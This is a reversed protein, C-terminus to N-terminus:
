SSRASDIEKGATNEIIHALDEWSYKDTMNQPDLIHKPIIYLVDGFAAQMALVYPKWFKFRVRYPDGDILEANHIPDVYNRKQASLVNFPNKLAKLSFIVDEGTLPKGDAWKVDKRLTFDYQLHDASITPMSEALVPVTYQMTNVDIGILRQYMQEEMYTADATTSNLPNIADVDSLEFETVRNNASEKPAGGGKGCSAVLFASFLVVFLQYLPRNMIKM